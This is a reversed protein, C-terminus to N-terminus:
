NSYKLYDYIAILKKLTSKHNNLCEKDNYRKKIYAELDEIDINEINLLIYAFQKPIHNRYDTEIESIIRYEKRDSTYKKENSTLKIDKLSDIIHWEAPLDNRKVGLGKIYKYVPLYTKGAISRINKFTKEILKINMLSPKNDYLIDELIDEISFYDFGMDSVIELNGFYIGLQEDNINSNDINGVMINNSAETNAIFNCIMDQMKRMLKIPLSSKIETLANYLVSYDELVLETMIIKKDGFDIEKSNISEPNGFAPNIFILNNKIQDLEKSNLCESIEKLISRINLDGVGYGIFIVPHEVFLTLLKASLYKLKNDFYAYDESTIVISDANNSSGHIKFIEFINNTNARLMKDQGVLVDFDKFIEELILDYNTTIVGAIKNQNRMLHELETYENKDKILILKKTEKAIYFKFPDYKDDLIEAMENEDFISKEFDEDDYYKKNFQKQIESALKPNLSHKVKEENEGKLDLSLEYAIKNVFKKYKNEDAKNITMWIDMLLKDWSPAESYRMSLGTGVFLYPLQKFSMVLNKIENEITSKSM